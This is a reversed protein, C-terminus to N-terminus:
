SQALIEALIQSLYIIRHMSEAHWVKFHSSINGAIMPGILYFNKNSEFNENVEFGRNSENPTCIGRRILNNILTSSSNNLDQFGSCNIVIKVPTAFIKKEQTNDDAYEFGSGGFPLKLTKLFKGRVFELKGAKILQDVVDLYEAGARRQLKGIEVGYISVFLKQESPILQSLAEIMGKSIAEYISGITENQALANDVDKQVAILIEEATLRDRNKLSNLQVPQYNSPIDARHPFCGSPSIIVFKGIADNVETSNMLSYISELASANSGVILVQNHHPTDSQKLVESIRDINVVQSPEYMSEIYCVNDPDVSQAVIEADVSKNPPSGIALVVKKAILYSRTRDQQAIEIQYSDQMQQVDVADAEILDCTVIGKSTADQLLRDLREKVFLGFIYRPIFIEDWLGAAIEEAHSELWKNALIGSENEGLIDFIWSRNENLWHKFKELEAQPLFEKLTSILLSHCANKQGYPIGAWFEGSKEVIAIKVTQKLPQKSLLSIYYIMTFSCSVGSGIVVIDYHNKLSLEDVLSNSLNITSKM